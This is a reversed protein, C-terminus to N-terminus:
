KFQAQDAASCTFNLVTCYLAVARWRRHRRTRCRGSVTCTTITGSAGFFDPTGAPVAFPAWIKVLAYLVLAVNMALVLRHYLRELRMREKRLLYWIVYSSCLLSVAAFPIPAITIGKQQAFTPPATM